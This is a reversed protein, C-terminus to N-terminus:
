TKEIEEWPIVGPGSFYQFHMHADYSTQPFSIANIRAVVDQIGYIASIRNQEQLNWAVPADDRLDFGFIEIGTKVGRYRKRMFFSNGWKM